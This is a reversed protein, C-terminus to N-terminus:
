HYEFEDICQTPIILISRSINPRCFFFIQSTFSKLTKTIEIQAKFQTTFLTIFPLDCLYRVAERKDPDSKM